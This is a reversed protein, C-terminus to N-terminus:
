RSTSSIEWWNRNLDALLFSAGGSTEQVTEIQTVDLKERSETLRAHSEHVAAASGVGLTFRQLPSLYQREGPPAQLNVVYWPTSPHKVYISSPWLQVVELGLGEEYFRRTRDLDECQITGHTFAQPVYGRGPFKEEPLPTTWHPAATKGLGSEVAKEYSEIEWWNGGPEVFHVSHAHHNDRIKDVKLGYQKKKSQLFEYANEIERNTAVRVGYHNCRPKEPADPGSEHVTLVWGTNAHKVSATKEGEAMVDFALLDTLVPLTQKLSRCEYHGGVLGTTQIM